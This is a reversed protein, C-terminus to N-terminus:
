QNSVANRYYSLDLYKEPSPPTGGWQGEIEARLKLVNAFGEVDLKADRAMGDAPDAAIDYCEAAVDPAVKLWGALLDIAAAKNAPALAWRLGEIYAQLYKVLVDENAKAWSRLM